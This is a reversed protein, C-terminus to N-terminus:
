RRGGVFLDRHDFRRQFRHQHDGPRSGALRLGHRRPHKKQDRVTHDHRFLDKPEREGAFSGRAQGRPDSAPEARQRRGPEGPTGAAVTLRLYRGVVGEAAPQDGLETREGADFRGRLHQASRAGPLQCPPHDSAPIAIQGGVEAGILDGFPEQRHGAAKGVMEGIRLGHRVLDRRHQLPQPISRGRRGLPTGHVAAQDAVELPELVPGPDKRQDVSEGFGLPGGSHDIECILHLHRRRQDGLMRADTNCQPRAVLHHQEVLVLVCTVGLPDNQPRHEGVRARIAPRRPVGDRSDAIRHLRDIGPTACGCGIQRTERSIKRSAAPPLRGAQGQRGTEAIRAGHECHGVFDRRDNTLPRNLNALKPGPDAGAVPVQPVPQECCNGVFLRPDRLLDGLAPSERPPPSSFVDSALGRGVAPAVSRVPSRSGVVATSIRRRRSM